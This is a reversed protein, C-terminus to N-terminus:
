EEIEREAAANKLWRLADKAVQETNAALYSAVILAPTPPASLVAAGDALRGELHLEDGADWITITVVSM